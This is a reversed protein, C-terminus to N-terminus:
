IVRLGKTGGDIKRVGDKEQKVFDCSVIRNSVKIFQGLSQNYARQFEAKIQVMDVECRSVVTRTLSLDNTGLGKMSEYLTKAYQVVKNKICGV